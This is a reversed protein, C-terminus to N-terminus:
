DLPTIKYNGNLGAFMNAARDVIEEDALMFGKSRLVEVGAMLDWFLQQQTPHFTNSNGAAFGCRAALLALPARESYVSEDASREWERALRIAQNLKVVDTANALALSAEMRKTM